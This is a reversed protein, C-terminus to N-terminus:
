TRFSFNYYLLQRNLQSNYEKVNAILHLNRIIETTEVVEVLDKTFLM